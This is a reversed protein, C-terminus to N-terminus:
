GTVHDAGVIHSGGVLLEIGKCAVRIIVVSHSGEQELILRVRTDTTVAVLTPLSVTASSTNGFSRLSLSSQGCLNMWHQM